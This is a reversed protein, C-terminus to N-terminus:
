HHRRGGRNEFERRVGAGHDVVLGASDPIELVGACHECLMPGSASPIAPRSGCARCVGTGRGDDTERVDM